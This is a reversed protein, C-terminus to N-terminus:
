LMRTELMCGADAFHFSHTDDFDTKKLGILIAMNRSSIGYVTYSNSIIAPLLM